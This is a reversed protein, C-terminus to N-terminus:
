TKTSTSKIVSFKQAKLRLFPKELYNYSVTALLISSGMILTYIIIYNFAKSPDLGSIIYHFTNAFFPNIVYIGYSIKGLFDLFKNELSIIGKRTVQGIIIFCTILTILEHSLITIPLHNFATILLVMWSLVQVGKSTVVKMFMHHGHFYLLAALAGMMMCQFRAHRLFPSIVNGADCFHLYLKLGILAIVLGFTWLFLKKHHLRNLWPWFLYFQEEVALSWYHRLMPLGQGLVFPINASLFIYYPISSTYIKTNFLVFIILCLGFYTYYLPWIRLMRRIYFKKISVPQVRKELCLLYTILFGSLTFFMTVGYGALDLGRPDGNPYQGFVYQSLGYDNLNITTHTVVVALAAIARIGNLGPLYIAENKM